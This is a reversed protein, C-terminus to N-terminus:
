FPLGDGPLHNHTCPGTTRVQGSKSIHARCGHTHTPHTTAQTPAALAIGSALVAALMLTLTRM